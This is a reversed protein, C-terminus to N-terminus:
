RPALLIRVRMVRGRSDIHREVPFVGQGWTTHFACLKARGLKLTGSATPKTRIQELMQYHHSHPRLDTALELTRAEMLQEAKRGHEMAEDMPLDVWGWVGEEEALTPAQM